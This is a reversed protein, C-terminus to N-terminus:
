TGILTSSPPHLRLRGLADLAALPREPSTHAWAGSEVPAYFAPSLLRGGAGNGIALPTVEPNLGHALGSSASIVVDNTGRGLGLRPAFPFGPRWEEALAAPALM